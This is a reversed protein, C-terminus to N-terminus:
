SVRRRTKFNRMNPANQGSLGDCILGPCRGPNETISGPSARFPRLLACRPARAPSLLDDERREWPTARPQYTHAREPCTFVRLKLVQADHQYERNVSLPLGARARSRPDGTACRVMAVPLRRSSTTITNNALLPFYGKRGTLQPIHRNKAPTIQL